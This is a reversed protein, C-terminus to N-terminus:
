TMYKILYIQDSPGFSSVVSIYRCSQKTEMPLRIEKETKWTQRFYICLM